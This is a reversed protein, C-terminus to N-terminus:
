DAKHHAPRLNPPVPWAKDFCWEVGHEIPEDVLPLFPIVALGLGSPGYRAIKVNPVLRFVRQSQHVTTHIVVAPVILSALTQFTASHCAARANLKLRQSEASPDVQALKLLRKNEAYTQYAVDGLVYAAAVGYTANVIWRPLLPRFSEGLDSSYALYRIKAKIAAGLAAKIRAIYAAYRLPTDRTLNPDEAVQVQQDEGAKPANEGEQGVM